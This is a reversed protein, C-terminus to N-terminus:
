FRFRLGLQIQRERYFNTGNISLPQGFATTNAKLGTMFNLTPLEDPSGSELYYGTTELETVNQHNFLNFTEALLELQRMERLNFTKGMHLDAKWTSPYRFTNRGINYIQNDSGTGYVRSDGGSGNMGPGLAVIATSGLFEEALSGATRMTYPMGGRFQGAGSLMWGNALRGSLGRLNWPAEWIAMVAASHRIDLNSTGYERRFDTPDLVDNGAVQASENPNWDMAHAYTYHTHLTLGRRGHRVIRLTAAEYTSNARSMIESIQQYDPNLRGAFGTPSTASPWSAYFPVTIKAAKIPGAGAADVVRYTISGPNVAPDFNTDITIPLRRGLSAFASATVQLGGPLPEELAAVAQHVESNRFTPVFQVAGPRVVSAPQGTLVYPFPPAGAGALNDTPRMFFSLDGKLSGTQTLATEVTANPTSAFYMGYGLRLVPWRSEGSGLALSIRPGCDNGLSPLKETSPLASNLLMPIPPPLQEREWRLGAALVLRKSAEWQATSYGAWEVTAVQWGSPGILQSYYSYCPLNSRGKLAGSSDRWVKGTQDCNHQNDIDLADSLGFAGFVLADSAFNEVNAYHYTGTQNRLLSTADDNHSVDFGSRVLVNGRVWDLSEQAQYVREDPYSGSGFRAPNGITFGYRSDVAIQPLQGWANGPLFTQEFATPTEPRAQQITRGASTQTVALLNPTLFAEWRGLM